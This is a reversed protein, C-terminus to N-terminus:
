NPSIPRAYGRTQARARHPNLGIGKIPKWGLGRMIAALRRAAGPTRAIKPLELLDYLGETSIRECGDATAGRVTKLIIAWPDSPEQARERAAKLLSTFAM